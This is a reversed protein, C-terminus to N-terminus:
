NFNESVQLQTESGRGVVELSHFHSMNTQNTDLCKCIKINLCENTGLLLSKIELSLLNFVVVTMCIVSFRETRHDVKSTVNQCRNVDSESMKLQDGCQLLLIIGLPRPGM